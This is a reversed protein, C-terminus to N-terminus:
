EWTFTRDAGAINEMKLIMKTPEEEIGSFTLTGILHHGDLGGDWSKAQLIKGDVELASSKVLDFSLDGEHTTFSVDFTAEDCVDDCPRIRVAVEVGNQSDTKTEQFKAAESVKSTVTAPKINKNKWLIWGGAGIVVIVVVIILLTNKM